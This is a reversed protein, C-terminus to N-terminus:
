ASFPGITRPAPLPLGDQHLGALHFVIADRMPNSM